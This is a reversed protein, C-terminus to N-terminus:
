ANEGAIDVMMQGDIIFCSNTIIGIKEFISDLIKKYLVDVRNM